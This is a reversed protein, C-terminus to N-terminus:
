LLHPSMTLIADLFYEKWETNKVSRCHMVFCRSLMAKTVNTRDSATDLIEMSNDTVRSEGFVKWIRCILSPSEM